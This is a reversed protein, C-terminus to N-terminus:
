YQSRAGVSLIIPSRQTTVKEGGCGGFDIQEKSKIRIAVSQGWKDVSLGPQTVHTLRPTDCFAARLPLLRNALM